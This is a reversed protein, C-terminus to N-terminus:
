PTRKFLSRLVDLSDRVPDFRTASNKDIYITEIEMTELTPLEQSLLILAQLEFGFKSEKISLLKLSSTNKLLRLGCQTDPVELGHTLRLSVRMTFNGIYSKWPMLRLDRVGLIFASDKALGQDAIRCLDKLSHQGDDDCFLHYDFDPLNSLAFEIACKLANGKGRNTAYGQITVGPLVCDGFVPAHAPLSGDNLLLVHGFGQGLIQRCFDPLSEPPNYTPIIVLVRKRSM